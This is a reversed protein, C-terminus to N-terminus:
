KKPKVFSFNTYYSLRVTPNSEEITDPFNWINQHIYSLQIQNHPNINYGFGAIIRNQNMFTAGVDTDANPVAAISGINFFAEDGLIAFLKTAKEEKILPYNLLLMYRFRNRYVFRDINYNGDAAKVAIGVYRNEDRFRNTIKLDGLQHTFQAQLWVHNEPITIKNIAPSGYVFTEYHSYGISGVLHKTLQYDFSPRVFYQQKESFGNAFRFSTEFTFSLKPTLMNKGFYHLWINNNHSITQSKSISSSFIVLIIIKLLNSIKKYM